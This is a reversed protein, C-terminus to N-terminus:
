DRIGGGAGTGGWLCLWVVEPWVVSERRGTQLLRASLLHQRTSIIAMKYILRYMSTTVATFTKNEEGWRGWCSLQFDKVRKNNGFSWCM